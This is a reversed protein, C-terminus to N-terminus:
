VVLMLGRLVLDPVLAASEPLAPLLREADGGTVLLRPPTGTYEAFARDLREALAAPAQITGSGIATATDTAWPADNGDVVDVRPIQTGQLLGDRMSEIGPLILGGMHRGDARLLDFTIATGADVILVDGPFHRHAALLALWRDVGLRAPEVYAIRVGCAERETRVFRPAVGWRSRCVDALAAAIAEGAVNAVLVRGPPALQEWAAHLDIPLGGFHRVARVEGLVGSSPTAWRLSTNGVDILLDM